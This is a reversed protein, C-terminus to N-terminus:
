YKIGKIGFQVKVSNRCTEMSYQLPHPVGAPFAQGEPCRTIDRKPSAHSRITSAMKGFDATIKEVERPMKKIKGIFVYNYTFCFKPM